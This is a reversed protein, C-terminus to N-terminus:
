PLLSSLFAEDDKDLIESFLLYKQLPKPLGLKPVRVFLNMDNMQLLHKRISVRCLYSLRLESETETNKISYVETDPVAQGAAFLLNRVEKGKRELVRLGYTNLVDTGAVILLKTCKKRNFLAATMLATYGYKDQTNLAAGAALLLEVCKDRGMCSAAMLATYGRKCQVDVDAGGRILIDVCKPRDCKNRGWRAAEMLATECGRNLANVDAGAQILIDVCKDRGSWAAIILATNGGYWYCNHANVNTGAQILIEVCKQHDKRVAEMLATSGGNNRANVDAGSQILIDVCKDCGWRATKIIVPESNKTNTEAQILIDVWKKHEPCLAPILAIDTRNVGSGKTLLAALCEHHGAKLARDLIEM